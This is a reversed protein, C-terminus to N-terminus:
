GHIRRWKHKYPTKDVEEGHYAFTFGEMTFRYGPTKRLIQSVSTSYKSKAEQVSDLTEVLRYERDYVDVKSPSHGGRVERAMNYGFNRDLAQLSDIYFKEKEFLLPEDVFEIVDMRLERGKDFVRQLIINPHRGKYLAHKHDNYRKLLNKAKGIYVKGNEMDVIRYICSRTLNSKQSLNFRVDSTRLVASM